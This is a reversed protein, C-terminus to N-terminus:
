RAQGRRPRSTWRADAHARPPAPAQGAPGTPDTRCSTSWRSTARCRSPPWTSPPSAGCRPRTSRADPRPWARVGQRRGRVAGVARGVVAAEAVDPHRELAAEVEAPSLNEGRRRIVEKSAGSSRTPGTATTASWTAPACGGTTRRGRGDRRADRLLRAHHGPQAARARRGRRRRGRRRREDVVRAQNVDGSSPHQRVSGLTGYPRQRPAVDARLAVRVARLRVRDRDRVAGRDRAPPRARAVPGTYCLRLPNDADDDRRPQRM